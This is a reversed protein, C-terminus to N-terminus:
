ASNLMQSSKIKKASKRMRVLCQADGRKNLAWCWKIEGHDLMCGRVRTKVM